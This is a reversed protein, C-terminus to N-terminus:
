LKASQRLAALVRELIEEHTQSHCDIIVDAWRRYLPDREALLDELSQGQTMVVGRGAFDKIRQAVVHVSLYLYVVIGGAKLHAMAREGYIVSGGTAVVTNRPHLTLVSEEEIRRFGATGQGALIAALPRGERSQIYVDTDLFDRSTAKALLVGITSKGAAPMGILILNDAQKATTDLAGSGAPETM